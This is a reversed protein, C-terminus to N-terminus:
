WRLPEPELRKATAVKELTTKRAQKFREMQACAGQTAGIAAGPCCTLRVIPVISTAM